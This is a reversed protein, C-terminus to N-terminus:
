ILWGLAYLAAWDTGNSTGGHTVLYVTFGEARAPFCPLGLIKYHLQAGTTINDELLSEACEIRGM